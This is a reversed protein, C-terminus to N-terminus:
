NGAKATRDKKGEGRRNLVKVFLSDFRPRQDPTCLMRIKKLHNFMRVEMARQTAASSDAVRSIISDSFGGAVLQKFQNDKSARHSEFLKRVNEQHRTSLTDYQQLQEKSFGIEEKLFTAIMARRDPRKENDPKDKKFLLLAALAINTLLLIGILLVLGKSRSQKEEM